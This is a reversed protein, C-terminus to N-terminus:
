DGAQEWRYAKGDWYILGSASEAKEVVLAVRPVKGRQGKFLDAGEALPEVRWVDMWDFDSGGNGFSIGAGLVAHGAHGGHLILIGKQKTRRDVIAMAVDPASDGNFDAELYFPNIHDSWDYLSDLKMSTFEALAWSPLREGLLWHQYAPDQATGTSMGLASLLSITAFRM